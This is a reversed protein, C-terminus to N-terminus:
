GMEKLDHVQEPWLELVFSISVGGGFTQLHTGAEDWPLRTPRGGEVGQHRRWQGYRISQMPHNDIGSHKHIIMM